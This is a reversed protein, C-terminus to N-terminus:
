FDERKVIEITIPYIAEVERKKIKFSDTEVGKVDVFRVNGDETFLVFDCIYKTGGPLFFPVQRLFMILQGAKKLLELHLYYDFELKSAFRTGDYTVPKAKFKHKLYQCNRM